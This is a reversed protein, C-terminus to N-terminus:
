VIDLRRHDRSVFNRMQEPRYGIVLKNCGLIIPDRLLYSYNSIFDTAEGVSMEEIKRLGEHLQPNVKSPPQLLDLFGNETLSLVKMLEIESFQSIRKM